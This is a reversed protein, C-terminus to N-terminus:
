DAPSSPRPARAAAAPGQTDLPELRATFHRLIPPAEVIRYGPLESARAAVKALVEGVYELHSRTYVRRPFCLRLLEHPAPTDPEGDAGPHGLLLTGIECSRIGGQLYLECSLAHGPFAAAPIHPLLTGADLYIAHLGAPRVTEVGARHALSAFYLASEERSELYRPDTVEELGVALAELDRGALGGYTPFGETAILLNRCRTALEDDSLTLVAGINGLGDKKLSSWAGDALRFMEQAIERPTSGRWNEDRRHVLWANEAFRAADLFLPVGHTRCIEGAERANDMSVPQGGGGNNTITLIVAGVRPGDPGALTDRLAETDIDGKFPALSSLDESAACPLDRTECGLLEINARTTDFHTNGLTLQGPELLCTFLIREAARGQHCPMVHAHGFLERVVAEFRTFSRAGAYAEDGVMLAAVQAQSMAGTGSDTFLDITVDDSALRFLNYGATALAARRHDETTLSIPEVVKIKYPEM